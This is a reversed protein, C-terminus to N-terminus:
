ERYQGRNDHTYAGSNAAPKVQWDPRASIVLPREVAQPKVKLNEGNVVRNGNSDVYLTNTLVEGNPGLSSM